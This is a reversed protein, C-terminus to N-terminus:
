PADLPCRFRRKTSLKRVRVSATPILLSLKRGSTHRLVEKVCLLPKLATSLGNGDQKFDLGAFPVWSAHHRYLTM